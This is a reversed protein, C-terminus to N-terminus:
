PHFKGAIALLPKCLEVTNRSMINRDAHWDQWRHEFLCDSVHGVWLAEIGCAQASAYFAEAEMNIVEAGRARLATMQAPTERYVAQVEGAAVERVSFPLAPALARVTELLIASAEYPAEGYFPGAGEQTVARTIAVQQGQPLEEKLSGAAGFGLVVKVGFHALEEVLISAQPGGWICNKVIGVRLGEFEAEFVMPNEQSAPIGWLVKHKVPVAHFAEVLMQSGATDRFALLAADWVPAPREASFRKALIKEPTIYYQM